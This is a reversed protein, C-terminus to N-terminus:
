EYLSLIKIIQEPCHGKEDLYLVISRLNERYEKLDNFILVSVIYALPIGFLLSLLLVALM